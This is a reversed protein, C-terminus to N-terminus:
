LQGPCTREQCCMPTIATDETVQLASLIHAAESKTFMGPSYHVQAGQGLDSVGKRGAQAQRLPVSGPSQKHRPNSMQAAMELRSREARHQRTNSVEEPKRKVGRSGALRLQQWLSLRREGPHKDQEVASATHQTDSPQRDMDSAMAAAPRPVPQSHISLSHKRQLVQSDKRLPLCLTGTIWGHRTNSCLHGLPAAATHITRSELNQQAAPQQLAASAARHLYTQLASAVSRLGPTLSSQSARMMQVCATVTPSVPVSLLVWICASPHRM